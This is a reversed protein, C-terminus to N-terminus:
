FSRVPGSGLVLRGRVREAADRLALFGTRRETADGSIAEDLYEVSVAYGHREAYKTLEHRQDEISTAQRESSM